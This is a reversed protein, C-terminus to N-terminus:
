ENLITEKAKQIKKYELTQITMKLISTRLNEVLFQRLSTEPANMQVDLVEHPKEDFGRIRFVYITM